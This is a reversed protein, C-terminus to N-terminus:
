SEALYDWPSGRIGRVGGGGGGSRLAPTSTPHGQLKAPSQTVDHTSHARVTGGGLSRAAPEDAQWKDAVRARLRSNM